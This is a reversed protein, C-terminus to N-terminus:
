GTARTADLAAKAYKKVREIIGYAPDDLEARTFWKIHDSVETEGQTVERTASTAFYAFSIHEHAENIRHRNVFRPVLLERESDDGPPLAEGVLVVDLGVEEKVERVAAEVPDEDLEIHGGPPFWTKYKDHLRLLM